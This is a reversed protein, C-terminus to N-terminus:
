VKLFTSKMSDAGDKVGSGFIRFPSWPRNNLSVPPVPRGGSQQATFESDHDSLNTFKSGSHASLATRSGSHQTHPSLPPEISQPGLFAAGASRMSEPGTQLSRPIKRSKTRRRRCRFILYCGLALILCFLLVGLVIAVIMTTTASSTSTSGTDSSQTPSQSLTATTSLAPPLITSSFPAASTSSVNGTTVTVFDLDLWRQELDTNNLTLSNTGSPLQIAFLLQQYQLTDAHASLLQIDSNYRVSFNGHNPGKSGYFYIATGSFTVDVTAGSTTSAHYTSQFYNDLAPDDSSAVGWGPGYVLMSAVDDITFNSM